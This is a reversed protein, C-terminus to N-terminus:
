RHTHAGTFPSPSFIPLRIPSMITYPTAIIVIPVIM